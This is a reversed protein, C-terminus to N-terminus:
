ATSCRRRTATRVDWVPRSRAMSLYKGSYKQTLTNFDAMDKYALLASLQKAKQPDNQAEAMVTEFEDAEVFRVGGTIDGLQTLIDGM